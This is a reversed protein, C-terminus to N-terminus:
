NRNEMQGLKKLLSKDQLLKRYIGIAIQHFAIYSLPLTLISSTNSFCEIGDLSCRPFGRDNKSDGNKGLSIYYLVSCWGQIADLPIITKEGGANIPIIYAPRIQETKWLSRNWNWKSTAPQEGNWKNGGTQDRPFCACGSNLCGWIVFNVDPNM